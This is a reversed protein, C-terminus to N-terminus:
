CVAPDPYLSNIKLLIKTTTFDCVIAAAANQQMKSVRRTGWSKDEMLITNQIVKM